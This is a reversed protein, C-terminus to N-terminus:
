MLLIDVTLIPDEKSDGCCGFVAFFLETNINEPVPQWNGRQVGTSDLSITQGFVTWPGELSPAIKIIARSGICGAHCIFAVQRIIVANELDLLHCHHPFTEGGWLTEEAPMKRFERHSLITKVSPVVKGFRMTNRDM